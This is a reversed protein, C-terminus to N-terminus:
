AQADNLEYHKPKLRHWCKDAFDIAYQPTDEIKLSHVVRITSDLDDDAFGDNYSLSLSWGDYDQGYQRFNYFIINIFYRTGLEDRIRMQYLADGNEIITRSINGFYKFGAELLEDHSM